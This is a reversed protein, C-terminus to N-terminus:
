LVGGKEALQLRVYGRNTVLGNTLDLDSGKTVVKRNGTAPSTTPRRVRPHSHLAKRSTHQHKRPTHPVAPSTARHVKAMHEVTHTRLM